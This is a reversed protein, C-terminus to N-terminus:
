AKGRGGDTSGRAEAKVIREFMLEAYERSSSECLIADRKVMQPEDGSWDGKYSDIGVKISVTYVPKASM